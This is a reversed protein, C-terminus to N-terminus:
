QSIRSSENGTEAVSSLNPSPKEEHAHIFKISSM